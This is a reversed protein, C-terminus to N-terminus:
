LHWDCPEFTWRIFTWLNNGSSPYLLDTSLHFSSPLAARQPQWFVHCITLFWIAISNTSYDDFLTSWRETKVMQQRDEPLVQYRFVSVQFRLAILSLHNCTM